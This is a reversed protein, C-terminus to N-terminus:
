PATPGAIQAASTGVALIAQLNSGPVDMKSPLSTWSFQAISKLLTTPPPPLLYAPSAFSMRPAMTPPPPLLPEMALARPLCCHPYGSGGGRGKGADHADSALSAIALINKYENSNDDTPTDFSIINLRLM